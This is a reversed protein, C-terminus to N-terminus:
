PIALSIAPLDELLIGWKERSEGVERPSGPVLIGLYYDSILMTGLNDQCSYPFTPRM